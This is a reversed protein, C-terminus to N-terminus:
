QSNFQTGSLLWMLLQEVCRVVHSKGTGCQGTLLVNHGELALAAADQQKETLGEM